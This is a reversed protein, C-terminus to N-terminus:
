KKKARKSPYPQGVVLSSPTHRRKPALGHQKLSGGDAVGRREWKELTSSCEPMTKTADRLAACFSAKLTEEDVPWLKEGANNQMLIVATDWSSPRLLAGVVKESSSLASLSAPGDDTHHHHASSPKTHQAGDFFAHDAAPVRATVRTHNSKELSRCFSEGAGWAPVVVLFSLPGRGKDDLIREIKKRMAEMTEPVFPPNAEFSGENPNFAADDFFSGLSGFAIEIDPFASCYRRYRCNLPSAFCEVTTGLGCRAAADFAVGPVACQYGAGSLAEYRSLCCYIAMRLRPQEEDSMADIYKSPDGDHECNIPIPTTTSGSKNNSRGEEQEDGDRALTWLQVLKWLHAGSVTLYPRNPKGNPGKLTVDYIGPRRSGNISVGGCVGTTVPNTADRQATRVTDELVATASRLELLTQRVSSNLQEQDGDDGDRNNADTKGGGGDYSYDDCAKLAAQAAKSTAKVARLGVKIENRARKRGAAKDLEEDPATEIVRAAAKRAEM